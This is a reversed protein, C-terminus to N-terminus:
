VITRDIRSLRIDIETIASHVARNLTNLEKNVKSFYDIIEKKSPNYVDIMYVNDHLDGFLESLLYADYGFRKKCYKRPNFSLAKNFSSQLIEDNVWNARSATEYIFNFLNEDNNFSNFNTARLQHYFEMYEKIMQAIKQLWKKHSDLNTRSIQKIGSIFCIILGTILGTSINGFISAWYSNDKNMYYSCGLTIAAIFIIIICLWM